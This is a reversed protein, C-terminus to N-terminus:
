CLLYKMLSFDARTLHFTQLNQNQLTPLGIMLIVALIAFINVWCQSDPVEALQNGKQGAKKKLIEM